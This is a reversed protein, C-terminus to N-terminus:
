KKTDTQVLTEQPGLDTEKYVGQTVSQLLLNDNVTEKKSALTQIKRGLCFIKQSRM